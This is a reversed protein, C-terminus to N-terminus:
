EVEWPCKGDTPCVGWFEYALTYPICSQDQASHGTVSAYVFQSENLGWTGKWTVTFGEGIGMGGADACQSGGTGECDKLYICLDYDLTEATDLSLVLMYCGDDVSIGCPLWDTKEKAYLKYWDIDTAGDKYLAGNIVLPDPADSEILEGLDRALQCTDNEEYDADPLPLGDDKVGNCDNDKDDCVEDTAPIEDKCIITGGVCTDVGAVCEGENTGCEGGGEPNEEDISGDCNNDKNDCLEDIEGIYDAGGCEGWTNADSCEKVGKQCEGENTGCVAIDGPNCCGDLDEDIEGDCDNDLGDCLPAQDEEAEAGNNKQEATCEAVAKGDVCSEVEITSCEGKDTGCIMKAQGEDIDGNCNDDKGNCKEDADPNVNIADDDCDGAGNPCVAPTGTVTAGIDCFGDHDNDCDEDTLSDCDNDIDDCIESSDAEGASCAGFAGAVCARTGQM